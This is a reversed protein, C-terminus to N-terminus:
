EIVCAPPKSVKGSAMVTHKTPSLGEQPEKHDGVPQDEQVEQNNTPNEAVVLTEEPSQGMGKSIGEGVEIFQLVGQPVKSWNGVSISGCVMMLLVCGTCKQDYM